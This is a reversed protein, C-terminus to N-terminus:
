WPKQVTPAVDCGSPLHTARYVEGFGGEAILAELRYRGDLVSGIGVQTSTPVYSRPAGLV